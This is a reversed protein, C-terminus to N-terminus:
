KKLVIKIHETNVDNNIENSTIIITDIFQHSYEIHNIEFYTEYGCDTSIYHLQRNYGINISDIDTISFATSDIQFIFKSDDESQSLSIRFKSVNKVNQFFQLRKGFYLNANQLLTDTLTSDNKQYFGGALAVVKPNLCSDNKNCSFIGMAAITLMMLFLKLKRNSIPIIKKLIKM